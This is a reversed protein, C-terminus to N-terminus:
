LDFSTILSEPEYYTYTCDLDNTGCVAPLDDVTVKISPKTEAFYLFEFPVPEYLLNKSYPIPTTNNYQINIGVLPTVTDSMISFQAPDKNYGSFKIIFDRGDVYFM